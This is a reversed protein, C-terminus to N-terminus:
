QLRKTQIRSSLYISSWLRCPSLMINLYVRPRGLLVYNNVDIVLKRYFSQNKLLEQSVFCWGISHYHFISDNLVFYVDELYANKANHLYRRSIVMGHIYHYYVANSIPRFRHSINMCAQSTLVQNLVDKDYFCVRFSM